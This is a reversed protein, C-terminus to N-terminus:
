GCLTVERFLGLYIVAVGGGGRGGVARVCVVFSFGATHSLLLSRVGLMLLPNWQLLSSFIIM